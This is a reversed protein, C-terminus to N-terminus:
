IMKRKRLYDGIRSLGEKINKVHHHHGSGGKFQGWYAKGPNQSSYQSAFDARDPFWDLWLTERPRKSSYQTCTTEGEPQQAHTVPYDSYQSNAKYQSPEFGNHAETYTAPHIGKQDPAFNALQM